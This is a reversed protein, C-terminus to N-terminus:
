GSELKKRCLEVCRELRGRIRFVRIRLNNLNLGFQRALERRNEIKAGAEGQYYLWILKRDEESLEQLCPELCDLRQEMLSPEAALGGGVPPNATRHPAELSDLSTTLREPHNHYEKLVNRAVGYGYSSLSQAPITEGESLRRIVRNITEDALEDARTCRRTEFFKMLRSRLLEYQHAAREM